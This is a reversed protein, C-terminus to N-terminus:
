FVRLIEINGKENVEMDIVNKCKEVIRVGEQGKWWVVLGGGLGELEVYCSKEYKM